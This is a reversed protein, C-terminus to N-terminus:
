NFDIDDIDLLDWNIVDFEENLVFQIKLELRLQKDSYKHNSFCSNYSYDEDDEHSFQVDLAYDCFTILLYTSYKMEYLNFTNLFIQHDILELDDIDDYKRELFRQIINRYISSDLIKFIELEINNSYLYQEVVSDTLKNIKDAYKEIFAEITQFYYVQVDNTKLDNILDPHLQNNNSCFDSTNDSIFIINKEDQTKAANLVTLWLLTDRFEEKKESCPRIKNIARRVSEELMMPDYEILYNKHFKSYISLIHSIFNEVEKEIDVSELEKRSILLTNLLNGKEQYKEYNEILRRKYVAKSEDLVLKPLLIYSDTKELYDFLLKHFNSDM